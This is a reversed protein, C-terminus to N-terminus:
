SNARMFHLMEELQEMTLSISQSWDSGNEIILSWTVSNAVGMSAEPYISIAGDRVVPVTNTDTM